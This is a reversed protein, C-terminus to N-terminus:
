DSGRKLNREKKRLRPLSFIRRLRMALDSSIYRTSRRCNRCRFKDSWFLREIALRRERMM